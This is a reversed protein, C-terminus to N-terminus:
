LVSCCVAVCQLVSCWATGCQLVSCCSRQNINSKIRRLFYDLLTAALDIHEYRHYQLVSCCVAVCQLVSCCSRNEYRHCQANLIAWSRTLRVTKPHPGGLTYYFGVSNEQWYLDKHVLDM